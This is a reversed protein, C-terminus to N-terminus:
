EEGADDGVDVEGECKTQVGDGVGSARGGDSMYSARGCVDAETEEQGLKAQQREHPM